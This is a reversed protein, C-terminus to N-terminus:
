IKDKTSTSSSAIDIKPEIWTAKEEDFITTPTEKGKIYADRTADYKDGIGAYNKKPNVKKDKTIPDEEDMWTQVWNNPDGLKGSNIFEQDAVIVRIVEKNSGLEAFYTPQKPKEKILEEKVEEVPGGLSQERGPLVIFGIIILLLSVLATISLKNITNDPM